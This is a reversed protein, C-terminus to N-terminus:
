GCGGGTQLIKGEAEDSSSTKKEKVEQLRLRDPMLTLPRGCLAQGARELFEPAASPLTPYPYYHPYCYM